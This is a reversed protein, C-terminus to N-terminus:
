ASPKKHSSVGTYCRSTETEQKKKSKTKNIFRVSSMDIAADRSGRSDFGPGDIASGLLVAGGAVADCRAAVAAASAPRRIRASIDACVAASPEGTM